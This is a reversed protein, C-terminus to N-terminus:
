APSAIYGIVVVSAIKTHTKNSCRDHTEDPERPRVIGNGDQPLMASNPLAKDYIFNIEIKMLPAEVVTTTHM